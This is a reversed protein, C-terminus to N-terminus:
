FGKLRFTKLKILIVVKIYSLLSNSKILNYLFNKIISLFNKINPCEIIIPIFRHGAGCIESCQGVLIRPRNIILIIQNIRGPNADSKVGLSPITWSHLVDKSSIIIRIPTSSPLVLSNLSSETRIKLSNIITSSIKQIKVLNPYEYSWYWQSGITKITIISYINEEIIYLTKLSPVALFILILAPISTWFLETEHSELFFRNFKKNFISIKILNLTIITISTILLIRHDHFFCLHEILPSNRDQLYLKRWIPM